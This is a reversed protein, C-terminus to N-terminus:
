PSVATTVSRNRTTYLSAPLVPSSAPRTVSTQTFICPRQIHTAACELAMTGGALCQRGIRTEATRDFDPRGTRCPLSRVGGREGGRLLVAMFYEIRIKSVGSVVARNWPGSPGRYMDCHAGNM